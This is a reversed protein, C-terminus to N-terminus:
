IIEVVKWCWNLNEKGYNFAEDLSEFLVAEGEKDTVIALNEFNGSWNLIM